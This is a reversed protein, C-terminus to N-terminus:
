AKRVVFFASLIELEEDPRDRFRPHLRERVGPDLARRLNPEVLEVRFGAREFTETFDHRRFRNTYCVMDANIRKWDDDDYRLFDLPRASSRHDRFDIQHLGVGGKATVRACERVAAV